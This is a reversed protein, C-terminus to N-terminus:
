QLRSELYFAWVGATWIIGFLAERIHHRFNWQALLELSRKGDALHAEKGGLELNADLSVLEKNIPELITLTYVVITIGFIVSTFSLRRVQVDVSLYSTLLRFGTTIAM